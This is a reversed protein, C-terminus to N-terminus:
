NRWSVKVKRLQHFAFGAAYKLTDGELCYEGDYYRNLECINDSGEATREYNYSCCKPTRDCALLCEMWESVRMRQLVFGTLIRGPITSTFSTSLLALLSIPIISIRSM